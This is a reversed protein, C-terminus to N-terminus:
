GAQNKGIFDRAVHDLEKAIQAFAVDRDPFSTVARGDNPLAKFVHFPLNDWFCSRLIIPVIRAQEAKHRDLARAMEVDYCYKSNIFDISILLLILDASELQKKIEDDIVDGPMISRDSWSEILEARKLPELHSLLATKLELDVHSYSIFVKLKRPKEVGKTPLQLLITKGGHGTAAKISGQGILSERTKKFRDEKWDLLVRLSANTVGSDRAGPQDSLKALFRDEFTGVARKAM